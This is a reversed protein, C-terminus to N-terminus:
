RFSWRKYASFIEQLEKSAKQDAIHLSYQYPVAKPETSIVCPRFPSLNPDPSMHMFPSNITKLWSFLVPHANAAQLFARAVDLSRGATIFDDMVLVRKGALSLPTKRPTPSAYTRPKQKLHITNLHNSFTREYAKLHQSKLSRTHRVILDPYYTKRFCKGFLSMAEDFLARFGSAALPNHGPFTCIYDIDHLIGSFYLSSIVAYFWFNPDGKNEKAVSRADAGYEALEQFYTSFPGMSRVQLSDRNISWYIPHKRLGFVECFRALESISEVPFGYPMENGYWAPRLLLLRNNVAAQMDPDHSGVLITEHRQVGTETLIPDVSGSRQRTPYEATGAQFQRVPANSERTLYSELPEGDLTKLTRSWLAVQVGRAAVRGIFTCLERLIDTRAKGDAGVTGDPSMLILKLPM